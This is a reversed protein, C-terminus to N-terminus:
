NDNNLAKALYYLISCNEIFDVRGEGIKRKWVSSLFQPLSSIFALM